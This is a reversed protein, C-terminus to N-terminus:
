ASFHCCGAGWVFFNKPVKQYIPFKAEPNAYDKYIRKRSHKLHQFIVIVSILYM